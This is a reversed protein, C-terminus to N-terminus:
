IQRFRYTTTMPEDVVDVDSVVILVEVSDADVSTVFTVAVSVDSVQSESSRPLNEVFTKRQNKRVCYILHSCGTYKHARVDHTNTMNLLHEEFQWNINNQLSIFCM